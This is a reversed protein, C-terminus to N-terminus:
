MASDKDIRGQKVESIVLQHAAAVSEPTSSFQAKLYFFMSRRLRLKVEQNPPMNYETAIAVRQEESLNPNPKVIVTVFTHWDIDQDAAVDTPRSNRTTTIRGLVFDCFEERKHCYARVHWREGDSAFAHPSLWRWSPQPNTMSQYCVEIAEHMRIARVVVQLTESSAQRQPFPWTEVQVQPSVMDVFEDLTTPEIFRPAFSPHPVYRKRSKNYVMNGPVIAMYTSFDTAAQTPNVGFYNVLDARKLEGKWFLCREIYEMRQRITFPLNDLSSSHTIKSM